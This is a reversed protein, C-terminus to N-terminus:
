FIQAMFTMKSCNTNLSIFIKGNGLWVLIYKLLEKGEEKLDVNGRDDSTQIDSDDENRQFNSKKITADNILLDLM